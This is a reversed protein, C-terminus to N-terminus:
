LNRRGLGLVGWSPRVPDGGQLLAAGTVPFWLLGIGLTLLELAGVMRLLLAASATFGALAGVGSYALLRGALPAGWAVAIVLVTTGTARSYRRYREWGPVGDLRQAILLPAAILCWVGAIVCLIHLWQTLTQAQVECGNPCPFFTGVFTVAGAGAIAAPGAVSTGPMGRHVGYAFAVALVGFLLLAGVVLDARPTGSAALASITDVVPDYVGPAASSAVWVAFALQLPAVVGALALARLERDIGVV